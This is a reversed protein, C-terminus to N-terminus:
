AGTHVGTNSSTTNFGVALIKETLKWDHLIGKVKEAETRGTSDSTKCIALIKNEEEHVLVVALRDIKGFGGLDALLKGNFNM